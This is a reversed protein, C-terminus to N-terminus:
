TESDTHIFNFGMLLMLNVAFVIILSPPHGPQDLDERPMCDFNNAKNCSLYIYLSIFNLDLDGYREQWSTRWSQPIKRNLSPWRDEMMRMLTNQSSAPRIGSYLDIMMSVHRHLKSGQFGVQM